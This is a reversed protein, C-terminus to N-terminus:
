SAVLSATAKEEGAGASNVSTFRGRTLWLDGYGRDPAREDDKKRSSARYPQNEALFASTCRMRMDAPVSLSKKALRSMLAHVRPPRSRAESECLSLPPGPGGRRAPVGRCSIPKSIERSSQDSRNLSVSGKEESM